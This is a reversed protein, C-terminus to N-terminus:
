LEGKYLKIERERRVVLINNVKGNSYIWRRFEKIIEETKSNINLKKVLTSKSFAGCGINYALSVLADFQQQTLATKVIRNVCNEFKLLDNEFLRRSEKKTIKQGERVGLTHGIGITWVNASCKYAILREGEEKILFIKGKESMKM